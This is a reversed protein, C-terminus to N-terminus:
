RLMVRRGAMCSPCDNVCNGTARVVIHGDDEYTESPWPYNVDYLNQLCEILHRLEPGTTEVYIASASYEPNADTLVPDLTMGWSISEPRTGPSDCFIGDNTTDPAFTFQYVPLNADGYGDRTKIRRRDNISVEVPFGAALRDKSTM